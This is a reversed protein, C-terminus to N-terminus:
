TRPPTKTEPVRGSAAEDLFVYSNERESTAAAIAAGSDELRQIISWREQYPLRCFVNQFHAAGKVFFTLFSRYDAASVIEPANWFRVDETNKDFLEKLHGIPLGCHETFPVGFDEALDALPRFWHAVMPIRRIDTEPPPCFASVIGGPKTVRVMESVAKPADTFHLSIVAVAADFSDDEFPLDEAVGQVIRVNHIGRERCKADLKQLLAATPDLATVSGNPGVMDCLGLDVTARGTGCGVELVRMGDKLGLRELYEGANRRANPFIRGHLSDYDAESFIVWRQNNSRWDFEGADTLISRLRAFVNLGDPTLSLMEGDGCLRNRVLGLQQYLLLSPNLVINSWPRHLRGLLFDERNMRGYYAIANLDEHASVVFFFEGVATLKRPESAIFRSLCDVAEEVQRLNVDRRGMKKQAAYLATSFLIEHFACRLYQTPLPNNPFIANIRLAESTLREIAELLAAEADESIQEEVEGNMWTDLVVGQNLARKVVEIVEPATLRQYVVSFLNSDHM